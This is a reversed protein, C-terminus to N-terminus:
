FKLELRLPLSRCTRHVSCICRVSIYEFVAKTSLSFDGQNRSLLKNRENPPISWVQGSEDGM